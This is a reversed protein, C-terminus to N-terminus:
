RKIHVLFRNEPRMHVYVIVQNQHEHATIKLEPYLEQLRDQISKAARKRARETSSTLRQADEVLQRTTGIGRAAMSHRQKEGPWSM